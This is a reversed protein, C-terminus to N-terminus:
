TALVSCISDSRDRRRALERAALALADRHAAREHALRADEQEVFRQGIEVGLQADVHADLDLAQM